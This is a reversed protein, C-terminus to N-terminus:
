ARSDVTALVPSTPQESGSEPEVTVGVATVDALDGSVVQGGTGDEGVRLFGASSVEGSEHIFWLQYAHGSPAPAMGSALVATEGRSPSTVARMAGDETTTTVADGEAFISAVATQERLQDIERSQDFALFSLGGVALVLVGAAVSTLARTIRGPQQRVTLPGVQRVTDPVRAVHERLAASVPVDGAGLGLQAATDLFGSVETTCSECGEDLHREFRLRELDDLADLADLAYAAALAHINDHDTTTM